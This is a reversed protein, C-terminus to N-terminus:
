SSGGPGVSSVRLDKKLDFKSGNQTLLYIFLCMRCTEVVQNQQNRV